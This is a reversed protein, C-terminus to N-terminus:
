KDGGCAFGAAQAIALAMSAPFGYQRAICRAPLPLTRIREREGYDFLSLQLSARGKRQGGLKALKVV